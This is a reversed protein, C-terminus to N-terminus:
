YIKGISLYLDHNVYWQGYKKTKKKHGLLILSPNSYIIITMKRM